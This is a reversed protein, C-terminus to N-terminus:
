ETKEEEKQTGRHARNFNRINSLKNVPDKSLFSPDPEAFPKFFNNVVYPSM